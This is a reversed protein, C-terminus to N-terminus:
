VKEIEGYEHEDEENVMEYWGYEEHLKEVDDIINRCRTKDDADISTQMEKTLITLERRRLRNGNETLEASEKHRPGSPLQYESDARGCAMQDVM